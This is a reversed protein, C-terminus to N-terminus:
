QGWPKHISSIGSIVGRFCRGMLAPWYRKTQLAAVTSKFPSSNEMSTLLLPAKHTESIRTEAGMLDLQSFLIEFEDTYESIDDYTSFLNSYM